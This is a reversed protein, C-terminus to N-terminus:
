EDWAGSKKEVWAGNEKEFFVAKGGHPYRDRSLMVMIVGEESKMLGVGPLQFHDSARRILQRAERESLGASRAADRMWATSMCGALVLIVPLM